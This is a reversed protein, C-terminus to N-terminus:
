KFIYLNFYLVTINSTKYPESVQDRVSSSSCLNVTDSFVNCCKSRLSFFSKFDPTFKMILLKMTQVQLVDTYSAIVM